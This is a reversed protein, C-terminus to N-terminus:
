VTTPKYTSQLQKAQKIGGKKKANRHIDGGRLNRASEWKHANNGLYVM